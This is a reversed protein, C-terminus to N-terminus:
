DLNYKILKSNKDYEFNSIKKENSAKTPLEFIM